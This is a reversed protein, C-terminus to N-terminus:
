IKEIEKDLRDITEQIKQRTQTKLRDVDRMTLGQTSIPPLVEAVVKGPKLHNLKLHRLYSSFVIPVIPVNAKIAMVFPGNKFPMLGRGASRTGEPM